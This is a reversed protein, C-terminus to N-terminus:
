HDLFYIPDARILRSHMMPRPSFFESRCISSALPPSRAKLLKELPWPFAAAHPTFSAKTQRMADVCFSLAAAGCDRQQIEIL